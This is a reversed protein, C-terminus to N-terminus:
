QPGSTVLAAIPLRPARTDLMTAPADRPAAARITAAPAGRSSTARDTVMPCVPDGGFAGDPLSSGPTARTLGPRCGAFRVRERDM